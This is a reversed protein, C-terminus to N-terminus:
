DTQVEISQLHKKLSSMEGNYKEMTDAITSAFALIVSLALLWPTAYTAVGGTGINLTQFGLQIGGVFYLLRKLFLDFFLKLIM